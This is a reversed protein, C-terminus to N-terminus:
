EDIIEDTMNHYYFNYEDVDEYSDDYYEDELLDDSDDIIADYDIYENDDFM